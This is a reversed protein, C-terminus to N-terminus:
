FSPHVKDRKNMQLGLEIRKGKQVTRHEAFNVRASQMVWVGQSALQQIQGILNLSLIRFHPPSSPRPIDRGVKKRSQNGTEPLFQMGGTGRSVEGGHSWSENSEQLM